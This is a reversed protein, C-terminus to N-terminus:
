ATAASWSRRMSCRLTRDPGDSVLLEELSMVGPDLSHTEAVAEEPQRRADSPSPLGHSSDSIEIRSMSDRYHVVWLSGTVLEALGRPYVGSTADPVFVIRFDRESAEYITARPCNPFNCGCIELTNAELERLHDAMGTGYFAGWRPKYMLWERARVEQVEGRLLLEADQKVGPDQNLEDFLEAGPTGPCVLRNGAALQARRPLDANSGDTLYLRIVHVIPRNASRFADVLTRISPLVEKTGPSYAASPPLQFGTAHRDNSSGLEHSPSAFIPM